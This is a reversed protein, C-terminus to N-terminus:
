PDVKLRDKYDDFDKQGRISSLSGELRDEFIDGMAILDVNKTGHMMDLVAQTGRGGCGILGAKLLEKGAGRVLDPKIITFATAGAAFSRRSINTLKGEM